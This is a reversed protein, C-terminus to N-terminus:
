SDNLITTIVVVETTPLFAFLLM